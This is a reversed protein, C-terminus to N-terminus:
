TPHMLNSDEPPYFAHSISGLTLLRSTQQKMLNFMKIFRLRLVDLAAPLMKWDEFMARRKYEVVWTNGELQMAVTMRRQLTWSSGNGTRSIADLKGDSWETIKGSLLALSRSYFGTSILGSTRLPSGWVSVEEAMSDYVVCRFHFFQRGAQKMKWATNLSSCNLVGGDVVEAVKLELIRLRARLDAAQCGSDEVFQELMEMTLKPGFGEMVFKLEVAAFFLIGAFVMLKWLGLVCFGGKNGSIGRIHPRSKATSEIPPTLSFSQTPILHDPTAPPTAPEMVPRPPPTAARKGVSTAVRKGVSTAARKGLSSIKTISSGTPILDLTANISALCIKCDCNTEKRCGPFYSSSDARGESRHRAAAATFSPAATTIAPPKSSASAPTKSSAGSSISSSKM